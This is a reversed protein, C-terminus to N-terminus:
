TDFFKGIEAISRQKEAQVYITTTNLSVHGLIRQLVDLPVSSAAAQTGFTHRFAHPGAQRMLEREDNDLPLLADDAIRALTTKIVQYLGDPAFGSEKRTSGVPDAWHKNRSSTTAPVVLPSILPMEVLGFSFDQGRDEWHAVLADIARKPLFITRWKNRKGLVDLEWLGAVGRVPKLKDRSACAAEERRLGGDGLLALAARVLRFQAAMSMRAAWGRLSYRAQLETDPLQCLQDLLGGTGALKGWLKGPLAKDIKIPLIAQAVRPDAVTIWPNGALYRVDVLWGFFARLIQIAYRQSAASPVGAFPKWGTALRRTRVGIWDAAPAAIFDKYAECDELLVSSLPKARRYLCWLLFRELEKQYARRTKEQARYKYLYSEVAQLDNRASILCFSPHRNVGQSGDYAKALAMRELPVLLEAQNPDLLVIGRDVAPPAPYLTADSVAGLAAQHRRLWRVIAKAKGEGLRPIPRYWAQGRAAIVGVLDAMCRQGDAQLVQAIRPKFWMSLPDHRAPRTMDQDAAQVLFDIAGRSWVQARRAQRLLDAVHPNSDTARAILRDRMDELRQRLGGEHDCGLNELDDDSYYLRAIQALPLRNLYARLATFDARSYRLEPILVDTNQAM